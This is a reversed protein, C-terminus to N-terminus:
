MSKKYSLRESCIIDSLFTSLIESYQNYVESYDRLPKEGVYDSVFYGCDAYVPNSPNNSNFEQIAKVIYFTEVDVSSGRQKAKELWNYTELFISPIQLHMSSVVNSQSISYDNIKYIQGHENMCQTIAVRSGIAPKKDDPTMSIYGGAGGTFVHTCHLKELLNKIISETIEGYNLDLTIIGKNEQTVLPTYTLSVIDGKFTKSEGVRDDYKHHVIDNVQKELGCGAVILINNGDTIEPIDKLLRSFDNEVLRSFHDVEGIIEINEMPIEALKLTLLQAVFNEQSVLNAMVVCFKNNGKDILYYTASSPITFQFL